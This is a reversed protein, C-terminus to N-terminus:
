QENEFCCADYVSYYWSDRGEFGMDSIDAEYLECQGSTTIGIAECEDNAECDAKCEELDQDYVVDLLKSVSKTLFGTKGCALNSKNACSSTSAESTTTSAQSTTATPESTTTPAATISPVDEAQSTTSPASTTALLTSSNEQTTSPPSSTTEQATTTSEVASETSFSDSIVSTTEAAPYGTTTTEDDATVPIAKTKESSTAQVATTSLSADTEFKSAADSYVISAGATPQAYATTTVQSQVVSSSPPHPRCPGAQAGITLGAVLATIITNISPM